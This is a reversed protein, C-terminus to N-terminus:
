IIKMAQGPKHIESYVTTLPGEEELNQGSVAKNNDDRPEPHMLDVYQINDHDDRHEEQLEAGRRIETKKKKECTKWLLGAGLILLVVVSFGIIGRLPGNVASEQTSNQKDCITGLDSTDSKQDVDNSVMCTLSANRQSLPLRLALTWPNPVPGPMGRQELERPIDKSEWTVMLSETTGSTSCLLTVNCWDSSVSTSQILIKPSPVPECVTLFFDQDCKRGGSLTVQAWYRGSDESILNEIRLSTVSPVQVRQGYKDRLGLWTPADAGRHVRLMERYGSPPGFSWTIEELEAGLDEGPNKEVHFLASGGRIRKQSSQARSDNMGSSRAEASRASLLLSVVGLLWAARCPHLYGSCPGM